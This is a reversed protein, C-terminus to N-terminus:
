SRSLLERLQLQRFLCLFSCSRQQFHPQCSTAIEATTHLSSTFFSVLSNISIILSIFFELLGYDSSQYEPITSFRIKLKERGYQVPKAPSGASFDPRFYRPRAKFVKKSGSIINAGGGAQMSTQFFPLFVSFFSSPLQFVCIFFM